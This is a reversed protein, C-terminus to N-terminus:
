RRNALLQDPLNRASARAPTAHVRASTPRRRARGRARVGALHQEGGLRDPDAAGLELAVEAVLGVARRRQDHAVLERAADDRDALAHLLAPAVAADGDVRHDCPSPAVAPISCSVGLQLQDADVAGAAEGLGHADGDVPQARQGVADVRADAGEGLREGVADVGRADPAVADLAPRDAAGDHEAGPRDAQHRQLRDHEAARLRDAHELEVLIAARGRLLEAGCALTLAGSSRGRPTSRTNSATPTSAVRRSASSSTRGPPQAIIIPSAASSVGSGNWWRMRRPM